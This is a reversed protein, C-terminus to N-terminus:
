LPNFAIFYTQNHGDSGSCGLDTGQSNTGGNNSVSVIRITSVKATGCNAVDDNTILVMVKANAVGNLTYWTGLSTGGENYGKITLQGNVIAIDVRGEAAGNVGGMDFMLYGNTASADSSNVIRNWATSPSSNTKRFYLKQDFFSGAFQMAYNNASNSHRIDLLHQWSNAGPYWDAAPTPNSTEYFGSRAGANGQLGADDRSETRVLGNGWYVIGDARINTSVHLKEAPATTGIGVNGASNARMVEAKGGVTNATGTEFTIAGYGGIHLIDDSYNRFAVYAGLNNDTFLVGSYTNNDATNRFELFGGSVADVAIKTSANLAQVGTPTADVIHLKVSPTPNGIGVGTSAVTMITTIAGPGGTSSYGLSVGNYGGMDIRDTTGNWKILDYQDTPGTRLFIANGDMHLNGAVQLKNVPNNTGIGVNDTLTTNYLTTGSRTWYGITGTAPATTTLNKSGDTYVASSAALGSINLGAFTPSAATHINQPTSLTIAGTSQSAIIQNATGSISTVGTNALNLTGGLAVTGGGSLGSGTNITVGSNALQSNSVSVWGPNGAGDTGWVKNNNGSGAPVLGPSAASNTAVSVTVNSGGVVQGTGNSVTVGTTGSTIDNKALAANANSWTPQGTGGSVLVQGSTGVPSFGYNTGNSYAISGGSGITNTNTGGRNIPLLNTVVGSSLDVSNPGMDASTITNPAIQTTTVADNAIMGTQVGQSAIAIQVASSGNYTFTGLGGGAQNTLNQLSSSLTTNTIVRVWDNSTSSWTYIGPTNYTGTTSTNYVMLGDPKTGSIPNSTSILAVRPILMGKNSSTVDLAANADPSTIGIGVPGEIIAGNAPAATTSYGSGVSLNGKITAKSAPNTEGIGVNQANLLLTSGFLLTFPLLKRM